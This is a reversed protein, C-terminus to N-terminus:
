TNLVIGLLTAAGADANGINEIVIDPKIDAISSERAIRIALDGDSSRARAALRASVIDPPASVQVVVVNAYRVRLADVVTRSVNLVATRGADLERDIERTIGYSHGHAQWSAAFEGAAEEKAFTDLTVARNDEYQSSARTVTRAPFVINANARCRDRVLGILTDKGVGSPGVVLVLRGPAIAQPGADVMSAAESM